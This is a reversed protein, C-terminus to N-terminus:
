VDISRRNVIIYVTFTHLIYYEPTELVPVNLMVILPLELETVTQTVGCYRLCERWMCLKGVCTRANANKAVIMVQNYFLLITNEVM